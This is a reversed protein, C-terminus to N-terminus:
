VSAPRAPDKLEVMIVDIPGDGVNELSHPPLPDSWLVHPDSLPGDSARSEFLVNGDQDRRVFDAISVVYQVSPWRHTHVPVTDGAEVRTELVRVHDNELRVAHHGPAAVVADLSAPWEWADASTTV